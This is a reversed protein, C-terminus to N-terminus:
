LYWGWLQIPLAQSPMRDGRQGAKGQKNVAPLGFPLRPDWSEIYAKGLCPGSLSFQRGFISTRHMHRRM